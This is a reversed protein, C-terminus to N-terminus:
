IVLIRANLTETSQVKLQLNFGNRCINPHEAGKVVNPCTAILIETGQVRDSAKSYCERRNDPNHFIPYLHFKPICRVSINNKM